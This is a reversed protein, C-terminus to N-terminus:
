GTMSRPGRTRISRFIVSLIKRDARVQPDKLGRWGQVEVDEEKTIGLSM